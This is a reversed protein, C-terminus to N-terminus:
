PTLFIKSFLGWERKKLWFVTYTTSSKRYIKLLCMKKEKDSLHLLSGFSSILDKDAILKECIASEDHYLVGDYSCLVLCQMGVLHNM